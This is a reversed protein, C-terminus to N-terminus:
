IKWITGIYKSDLLLYIQTRVNEISFNPSVQLTLFLENDIFISIMNEANKIHEDIIVEINKKNWEFEIINKM